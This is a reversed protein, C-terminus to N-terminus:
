IGGFVIKSETGSSSHFPSYLPKRQLRRIMRDNKKLGNVQTAVEDHQDQGNLSKCMPVTPLSFLQDSYLISIQIM